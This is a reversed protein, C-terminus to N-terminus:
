TDGMFPRRGPTYAALLL